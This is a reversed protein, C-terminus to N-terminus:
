WEPGAAPTDGVMWRGAETWSLKNPRTQNSPRPRGPAAQKPLAPHPRGIVPPPGDTSDGVNEGRAPTPPQPVLVWCARAPPQRHRTGAEKEARSATYVTRLGASLLRATMRVSPHMSAGMGM